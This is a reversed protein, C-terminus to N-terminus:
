SSPETQYEVALGRVAAKLKETEPNDPDFDDWHSWPHMEGYKEPDSIAKLFRSYGWPGGVDEPPCKGTVEILQPYFEGVVPKRKRGIRILHDWCDGFDYRYKFRRGRIEALVEEVTTEESFIDGDQADYPNWRFKGWSFMYLHDNDWGMAGQIIWHMDELDADSPILLVRNVEPEVDMLTVTVEFVTM